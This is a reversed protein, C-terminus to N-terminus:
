CLVGVAHAPMGPVIANELDLARLLREGPYSREESRASFAPHLSTRATALMALCLHANDMTAIQMDDPHARHRPPQAFQHNGTGRWPPRQM